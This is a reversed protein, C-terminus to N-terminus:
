PEMLRSLIARAGVQYQHPLYVSPGSGILSGAGQSNSVSPRQPPQQQQQQQQQLQQKLFQQQQHVSIEHQSVRRVIPTSLDEDRRKAVSV